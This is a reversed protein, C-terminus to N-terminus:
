VLIMCPVDLDSVEESTWLMCLWVVKEHKGRRWRREVLIRLGGRLLAYCSYGWTQMGDQGTLDREQGGTILLGKGGEEEWGVNRM